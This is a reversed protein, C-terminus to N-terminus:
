GEFLKFKRLVLHILVFNPSLGKKPSTPGRDRDKQLGSDFQLLIQLSVVWGGAVFKVTFTKIFFMILTM